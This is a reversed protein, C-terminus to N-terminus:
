VPRHVEALRQLEGQLLDCLQQLQSSTPDPKTVLGRALEVERGGPVERGGQRVVRGAHVAGTVAVAEVGVLFAVESARRVDVDYSAAAELSQHVAGVAESVM